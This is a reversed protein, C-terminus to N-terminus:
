NSRAAWFPIPSFHKAEGAMLWRWINKRPSLCRNQIPEFHVAQTVLFMSELFAGGVYHEWYYRCPPKHGRPFRVAALTPTPCGNM